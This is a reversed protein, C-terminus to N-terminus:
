IFPIEDDLIDSKNQQESQTKGRAKKPKEATAKEPESEKPSPTTDEDFDNGDTTDASRDDKNPPANTSAKLKAMNDLVAKTALLGALVGYAGDFRGGTPQTDLHSGVIVTDQSAPTLAAVGFMNGIADVRTDLGRAKIENLFLDRATKDVPTAALRCVGGDDIAGITSFTAILDHLEKM